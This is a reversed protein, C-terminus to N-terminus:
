FSYSVGLLASTNSNKSVIPSGHISSPLFNKNINAFASVNSTVNFFTSVSLYTTGVSGPSYAPRNVEVESPMVGFFYESRKSDYNKSGLSFIVPQGGIPLFQSFSFDILSGNFENTVERALKLKFTSGRAIKLSGAIVGDFTTKRSMDSLMASDSSKYPRFNPSIAASIGFRQNDIFQYSVGQEFGIKVKGIQADISPMFSSTSGAGDYVSESNIYAFGVSFKTSTEASLVSGFCVSIVSFLSFFIKDM